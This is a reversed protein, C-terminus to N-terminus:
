KGIENLYARENATILVVEGDQKVKVVSFDDRRVLHIMNLSFM